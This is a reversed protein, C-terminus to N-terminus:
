SAELAKSAPATSNSASPSYEVTVDYFQGDLLSYVRDAIRLMSPRLSVLLVTTRGKLRELGQRLLADSRADLSTNAEDFLLIKPRRALARCIVIRQMMGAPLEETIGESLMMDYGAPLRHIDSELGIAQAAERACDIIEGGRFLTINEMITGRFIATDKPVYAVWDHMSSRSIRSPDYEGLRVDGTTPRVEGQIMKIVTSKGSGDGGRLGIIEGPELDLSVNKLVLPTDPGYAFSVGSIKISGDLQEITEGGKTAAADVAFLKTIQDRAVSLRQLQTWLGLGKLLPQITRGSLLTCAALTGMTLQGHIVMFAGVTVVCIMALNSFLVGIIQVENGLLITDHSANAGIKQLREFRRLIQPEMAMTKITEIGVLSEIIFDYRRDDHQSRSQLVARLVGGRKISISGLLLFLVIPVIVIYGGIFAMLGLFIFVFPLDLLLLRSQGGYFERMADLANLRDLHVSPAEAELDVSRANLIRTVAEMSIRYEHHATVWGVMHARAIKMATDLVLVGCLGIALLSLTATAENPLIRDYVQLIVLPLALALLNIFFSSVYIAWPLPPAANHEISADTDVLPEAHPTNGAMGTKHPNATKHSHADADGGERDGKPTSDPASAAFVAKLKDQLAGVTGAPADANPKDGDHM